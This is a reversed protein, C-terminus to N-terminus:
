DHFGAQRQDDVSRLDRGENALENRLLAERPTGASADRTGAGSNRPPPADSSPSSTNPSGALAGMGFVPKRLAARFADAMRSAEDFSFPSKGTDEQTRGEGATSEEKTRDDDASSAGLVLAGTEDVEASAGSDVNHMMPTRSGHSDSAAIGVAGAGPGYGSTRHRRRAWRMLLYAVTLIAVLVFFGLVVILAIAWHPISTGSKDGSNLTGGNAQATAYATITQRDGLTSTATGRLTETGTFGQSRLSSLLANSLSSAISVSSSLRAASALSGSASSLAAGSLSATLSNVSDTVSASSASAAYAASASSRSAAVEVPVATQIARWTALRSTGSSLGRGSSTIVFYFPWTINQGVAINDAAARGQWWKDEPQFSIRGQENSISTWSTFLQDSDQHYLFIDVFGGNNTFEPYNRNWVFKGWTGQAITTNSTPYCSLNENGTYCENQEATQRGQLSSESRGFQNASLNDNRGKPDSPTQTHAEQVVAEVISRFEQKQVSIKMKQSVRQRVQKVEFQSDVFFPGVIGDDTYHFPSQHTTARPDSPGPDASDVALRVHQSLAGDTPLSTM